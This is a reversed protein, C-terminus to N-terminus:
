VDEKKINLATNTKYNGKTTERDESRDIDMLSWESEDSHTHM